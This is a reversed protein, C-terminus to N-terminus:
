EAAAAPATEPDAPATKAARGRAPATKPAADPEPQPASPHANVLGHEVAHAARARDQEAQQEAEADRLVQVAAADADGTPRCYGHNAFALALEDPVDFGEGPGVERHISDFGVRMPGTYTFRVM